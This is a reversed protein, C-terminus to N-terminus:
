LAAQTNGAAPDTQVRKSGNPGTLGLTRAELTFRAAVQLPPFSHSCM